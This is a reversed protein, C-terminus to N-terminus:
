DESSSAWPSEHGILPDCSRLTRDPHHVWTEPSQLISKYGELSDYSGLTHSVQGVTNALIDGNAAMSVNSFTLPSSFTVSTANVAADAMGYDDFYSSTGNAGDTSVPEQGSLATVTPAAAASPESGASSSTQVAPAPGSVRLAVAARRAAKRAESDAVQTQFPGM